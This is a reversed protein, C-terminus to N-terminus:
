RRSDLTRQIANADERATNAKKEAHAKRDSDRKGRHKVLWVAGYGLGVALLIWVLTEM